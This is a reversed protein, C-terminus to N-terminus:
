NTDVKITGFLFRRLRSFVLFACGVAAWFTEGGLLMQNASRAVLSFVASERRLKGFLEHKTGRTPISGVVMLKSTKQEIWQAVPAEDSSPNFGRKTALSM